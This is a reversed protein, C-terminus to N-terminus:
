VNSDIRERINNLSTERILQGDRFVTKLEGDREEDWSCQDKVKFENGEKYVQVLGKLSKKEGNDTKPDKFIEVPKGDIEGYTSKIAFGYTDRSVYQFSYSGIGFVINNSAFGMEKMKSLIKDQLDVSISEGYILGIHPDLERFGKSNIHGGFTEWLCELSGKKEAGEAEPDGCIIELPTKPSSDPRIVVKGERNLIYPRLKPLIDTLVKWYDFTDCVISIIGSPYVETILRKFQHIEGFMFRENDKIKRIRRM